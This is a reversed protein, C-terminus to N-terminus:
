SAAPQPTAFVQQQLQEMRNRLSACEQAFETYHAGDIGLQDFAEHRQKGLQHPDKIDMTARTFDQAAMLMQAKNTIM